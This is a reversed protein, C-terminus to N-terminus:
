EGRRLNLFTDPNVIPIGHFSKLDTLHHDGSIIYDAQGELACALINNDSPDSQIHDVSLNGPTMITAKVIKRLRELVYNGDMSRKRLIEVIKAYGLVLVIERLIAPSILLDIEGNMCMGLIEAPKGGPSLFASIFLNTDLVIRTM